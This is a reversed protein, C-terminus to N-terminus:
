VSKKKFNVAIIGCIAGIISGFLIDNLLTKSFEFHGDLISFAVFALVTYVFGILLGSILGMERVKRLAWLTGILISVGKIVQNIPAILNDSIPAFRLIFAFILIGVLSFSLSILSGKIVNIFIKPKQKEGSASNIKEM